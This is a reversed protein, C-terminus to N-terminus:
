KEDITIDVDRTVWRGAPDAVTEELVVRQEEPFIQIIKGNNQGLYNGISALHATGVTTKVIVWPVGKQSITGVMSLADLPVEELPEKTRNADPRKGSVVTDGDRNSVINDFNFPENQDDSAYEFGKYPQIEPLPEIDPKKDKYADAVFERLDTMNSDVCGQALVLSLTLVLLRVGNNLCM